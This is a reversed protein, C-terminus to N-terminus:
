IEFISVLDAVCRSIDDASCDKVFMLGEKLTGAGNAVRTDFAQIIDMLSHGQVRGTPKGRSKLIQWKIIEYYFSLLLIALICPKKATRFPISRQWHM